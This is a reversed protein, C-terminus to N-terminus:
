QSVRVSTIQQAISNFATVIGDTTTLQYYKSLDTACDQLVKSNGSSGLNVFVTYIVFGQQKANSCALAMRTDVSASQSSGNGYWRDMTNLGDSLLIVYRTTNAPLTIPSYPLGSTLAQMGHALGITQNTGGAATMADIQANLNSFMATMDATVTPALNSMPTIVAKPCSDSNETPFKTGPTTDNADDNQNRDMVCGRWTTHNNVVWAHNYPGAGTVTTTLTLNNYTVTRTWTYTTVGKSTKSSKSGDSNSSNQNNSTTVTPGSDSTYGSKTTTSTGSSSNGNTQPSGQNVCSITGSGVQTCTQVLKMPQTVTVVTTTSQTPTSNWCGNYYHGAQGSSSSRISGPCVYGAYTGTAPVTSVTTMTVGDSSMTGGPQDLCSSYTSSFPCNSGPGVSTGPKDSTPMATEWDSWDLWDAAAYTNGINVDKAFPVISVMVDGPNVSANQLTALLNHSAKKLANIKIKTSTDNPCPNSDPECMSGTNDLVLSVWLKSQGWVVTSSAQIGITQVNAVNLLTTTVSSTASLTVSGKADYNVVQVQPPSGAGTYNADLYAQAATQIQAATMGGSGVALAAADLADAMQSKALAARAYDLGVGTAITLPVLAVGFMMAVNGRRSAAFRRLLVCARTFIGMMKDEM